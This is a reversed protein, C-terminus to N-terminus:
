EAARGGVWARFVSAGGCLTEGWGCSLATLLAEGTRRSHPGGDDLLAGAHARRLEASADRVAADNAPTVDCGSSCLTMTLLLTSCRM